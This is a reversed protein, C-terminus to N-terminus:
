APVVKIRRNQICKSYMRCRLLYWVVPLRFVSLLLLLLLLVGVARGRKLQDSSPHISRDITQRIFIYITRYLELRVYRYHPRGTFLDITRYIFSDIKGYISERSESTEVWGGVAGGRKLRDDPRHISPHVFRNTARENLSTPLRCCGSSGSRCALPILPGNLRHTLLSRPHCQVKWYVM